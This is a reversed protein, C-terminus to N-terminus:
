NAFTNIPHSVKEKMKLAESKEVMRGLFLNCWLTPSLNQLYALFSSFAPFETGEGFFSVTKEELVEFGDSNDSQEFRLFWQLDREVIINQIQEQWRKESLLNIFRPWYWDYGMPKDSKEIYFGYFIADSNLQVVFKPLKVGAQQNDMPLDPTYVFLQPRRYIALSIFQKGSIDSLQQSVLGGLGERSRWNTGAVNDKFDDEGFGNFNITTKKAKNKNRYEEEETARELRIREWIRSQIDVNVTTRSGNHYQIEMNPLSIRLVTYAGKKNEYTEGVKFPHEM